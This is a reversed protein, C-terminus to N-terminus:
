GKVEGRFSTRRQEDTAYSYRRYPDRGPGHNPAFPVELQKTQEGNAIKTWVLRFNERAEHLETQEVCDMIWDLWTQRDYTAPPVPYLFRVRYNTVPSQCTECIPSDYSETTKTVIELTLGGASEGHTSVPDREEDQLVFRWGPRYRVMAVLAELEDPWPAWQRADKTDSV